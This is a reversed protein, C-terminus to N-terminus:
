ESGSANLRQVLAAWHQGWANCVSEVEAQPSERLAVPGYHASQANGQIVMGHNLLIHLMSLLALEAGGGPRGGGTFAGGVKGSLPGPYDQFAMVDFLRKIQWDVDGFRVPTGIIIGKAALMDDWQVEDVTRVLVSSGGEKIGQRIPDVMAGTRGNKSTYVILLDHQDDTM